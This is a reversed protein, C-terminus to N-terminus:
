ALAIQLSAAFYRNSSSASDAGLWGRASVLSWNADGRGAMMARAHCGAPYNFYGSLDYNCAYACAGTTLTAGSPPNDRPVISYPWCSKHYGEGARIGSGILEYSKEFDFAGGTATYISTERALDEQHTCLYLKYPNTYKSGSSTNNQLDVVCELGGYGYDFVDGWWVEGDVVPLNMLGSLLYEAESASSTNYSTFGQYTTEPLVRTLKASMLSTTTLLTEARLSPETYYYEEGEWKFHTGPGIGCEVAMSLAMQAELTYEKPYEYNTITTPRLDYNVSGSSSASTRNYL